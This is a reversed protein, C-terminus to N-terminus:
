PGNSIINIINGDLDTKAVVWNKVMAGFRNKGRYTMKVTLYSGNDVYTTEDHKFSDPDNMANKIIKELQRHSGDWLSFGKSIQKKRIEEPTETKANITSTPTSPSSNISPVSIKQIGSLIFILALLIWVTKTKQSFRSFMYSLGKFFQKITM